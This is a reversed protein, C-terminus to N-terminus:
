SCDGPQLAGTAAGVIGSLGGGPYGRMFYSGHDGSVSCNTQNVENGAWSFPNPGFWSVYRAPDSRGAFVWLQPINSLRWRDGLEMGVSGVIVGYDVGKACKTDFDCGFAVGMVLAGYSYGVVGLTAGPNKDNLYDVLNVLGTAADNGDTPSTAEFLDDPNNYGYVVVAVDEIGDAIAQAYMERARTYDSASNGIQADSGAGPVFVIIHAATYPNGISYELLAGHGNTGNDTDGLSIALIMVDPHDLKKKTEDWGSGSQQGLLTNITASTQQQPNYLRWWMLARNLYSWYSPDLVQAQYDAWGADIQEQSMGLAVGFNHVAVATNFRDTAVAKRVAAMYATLSLNADPAFLNNGSHGDPDFMNLPNDSGYTFRNLSLPSHLSGDQSDRNTFTDADPRYFRAGMWIEKSTPDTWDTQFGLTSHKAGTSGTVVGFPDYTQAGDTATVAPTLLGVVDGHLNTAVWDAASASKMSVASGDPDQLTGWTGDNVPDLGTANYGFWAGTGNRRAIRGLGDYSYTTSGNQTELGFADEVLTTTVGAKLTSSLVGRDTWSFTTGAGSTIRNQDDYVFTNAGASTRNGAGDYSYNTVVSAPNTWSTLQEAANYGYTNWGLTGQFDVAQATINDDKDYQYNEWWCSGGTVWCGDTSFYATTTTRGYHDFWRYEGPQHGSPAAGPGKLETQVLKGSVDYALNKTGSILPDTIQTVHGNADYSFTATGAADTRSTLLGDDNFANATNAVGAGQSGGTATLVLGRDDYTLGITANPHSITTQRGGLDYTFSRSGSAGVGTETLVRGSEDFTRNIAVSGPQTDKTPLGASDYSRQWTRNAAPQGVFTPPEIRSEPLNWQQYTVLTDKGRGNRTRTTNGAADYFYQTQNAAATGYGLTNSIPRNADDYVTNTVRGEPTSKSTQNGNGDYIFTTTLAPDSQGITGAETSTLQRGAQDFTARVAVGAPDAVQLIEGFADVSRLTTNGYSDSSTVMEGAANFTATTLHGLPDSQWTQNGLWDYDLTLTASHTTPQRVVIIQTRPRGLMDYTNNTVAGIADTSQTTLGLNDYRAYTDAFSGVTSGPTRFHWARNLMDFEFTSTKGRRDVKSTLNGVLDYFMQETPTIASGGPPTYSPYSITRERAAQDYATTTINGNQDKSQTKEGWTGYGTYSTPQAAVPTSGNSEISVSPSKVSTPHGLADYTTTTIKLRPDTTTKLLSRSDYTYTTTLNSPSNTVVQSVKQGAANYNFTAVQDAVVGLGARTVTKTNGSADYTFTTKREVTWTPASLPTTNRDLEETARLGSNLYTNVTRRLSNAETLTLVNGAPDFTSNSTVVDQTGGTRLAFNKVTSTAVQDSQAFAYQTVVNNANTSSLKRGLEDYTTQSITLDAAVGPANRPDVVFSKLVLITPLNRFNYAQQYTRGLGDTSTAVNGNPDYTVASTAAVASGSATTKTLQRDANDYTLVTVRPLDGGTLDSDSTSLQNSNADYAFTTRKTHTVGTVANIAGPETATAVRSLKDYTTSWTLGGPFDTSTETKTLQRGIEDYTFVTTKGAPDVVKTLDGGTNYYYYTAGLVGDTSKKRLGPPAFGGAPVSADSNTTTYDNSQQLGQPAPKTITVVNGSSDYTTSIQYPTVTADTAAANLCDPGPQVLPTSTSTVRKSSDFGSYTCNGWRDKKKVMNGVEDNVYSEASPAGSVPEFQVQNLFGHLADYSWRRTYGDENTRRILRRQADFGFSSQHSRADTVTTISAEPPNAGPNGTANYAYAITDATPTNGDARSAVHDGNYTLSLLKNGKPNYWTSMRYASGPAYDYHTHPSTGVVLGNAPDYVDTLNLSTGNYVYTWQLVGQGTVSQTSVSTVRGTSAHALTLTRGGPQATLTTTSGAVTATVSRNKEDTVSTLGGGSSYRYVTKAADTLTWGGAGDPAFTSSSAQPHSYSGDPNLGYFEIRGDPRIVQMGGRSADTYVRSDWLFSWGLGFSASNAISQNLSNYTRTVDLGPGLSKVSVDTVTSTFNGSALNVGGVSASTPDAGLDWLPDISSQVMFWRTDATNDVPTVGDFVSPYWRYWTDWKLKNAPMSYPSLPAGSSIWGSNWAATSNDAEQFTFMRSLPDSPDPDSVNSSFNVTGMSTFITQDAPSVAAVTPPRNQFTVTLQPWYYEGLISGDAVVALDKYTGANAWAEVVSPTLTVYQTPAASGLTVGAIFSAGNASAYLYRDINPSGNAPTLNDMLAVTATSPPPITGGRMAIQMTASAIHTPLIARIANMDYRAFTRNISGFVNGMRAWCAGIGVCEKAANNTNERYEGQTPSVNPLTTPDITIPFSEASQAKLWAQDVSVSLRGGVASEDGGQKGADPTAPPAPVFDTAPRAGDDVSAGNRDTVTPALLGMSSGSSTTISAVHTKPDITVSGGEVRFPISPSASASKLIIDEKLGGPTVTYRLDVGPQVESYTVSSEDDEIRPAVDAQTDPAFAVSGGDVDTVKVGGKATSGFSVHWSDAANTLQGNAGKTIRTDIPQWSGDESKYNLRGPSVTVTGSGDGNTVISSFETREDKVPQRDSEPLVSSTHDVPRKDVEVKSGPPSPVPALNEGGVKPTPSLGPTAVDTRPIPSALDRDPLGPRSPDEPRASAAVPDDDLQQAGVVTPPLVLLGGVVAAIVRRQVRSFM